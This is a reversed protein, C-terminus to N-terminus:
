FFGSGVLQEVAVPSLLSEKGESTPTAVLPWHPIPRWERRHSHTSGGRDRPVWSLLIFVGPGKEGKEPGRDIEGGLSAPDDSGDYRSRM